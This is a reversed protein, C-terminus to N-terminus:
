IFPNISNFRLEDIENNFHEETIGYKESYLTSVTCFRGDEWNLGLEESVLRVSDPSHSEIEVLEPLFPWTDLAIEADKYKWIERFSEQFSKTECGINELLSITDGFSSVEIETEFQGDIGNKEISKLALTIKEGDDRVRLWRNGHHHEAKEPLNLTVRKQLFRERILSAGKELLIKRFDEHNINEFLVEFENKM